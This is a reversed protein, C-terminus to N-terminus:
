KRNNLFHTKEKKNLERTSDVYFKIERGESCVASLEGNKQRIPSIGFGCHGNVMLKSKETCFLGGEKYKRSPGKEYEIIVEEILVRLNPCVFPKNTIPLRNLYEVFGPSTKYSECEFKKM